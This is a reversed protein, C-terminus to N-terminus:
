SNLILMIRMVTFNFLDIIGMKVIATIESIQEDVFVGVAKINSDLKNKLKDAQYFDVQAKVKLLSLDLIILNQRM